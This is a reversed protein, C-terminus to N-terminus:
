PQVTATATSNVRVLASIVIDFQVSAERGGVAFTSNRVSVSRISLPVRSTDIFAFLEPLLDPDSAGLARVSVSSLGSVGQAKPRRGVNADPQPQVSSLSVGVDDAAASMLGLLRTTAADASRATVIVTRDLDRAMKAQQASDQTRTASLMLTRMRALSDVLDARRMHASDSWDRWAPVIRGLLIAAVVVSVACVIVVRERSELRSWSISLTM